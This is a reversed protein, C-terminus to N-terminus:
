DKHNECKWLIQTERKLGCGIFEQLVGNDRGMILHRERWSYISSSLTGQQWRFFIIGNAPKEQKMGVKYWTQFAIWLSCFISLIKFSFFYITSMCYSLYANISVYVLHMQFFAQQVYLPEWLFNSLCPPNSCFFIIKKKLVSVSILNLAALSYPFIVHDSGGVRLIKMTFVHSNEHTYDISSNPFTQWVHWSSNGLTLSGM